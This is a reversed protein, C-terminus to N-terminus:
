LNKNSYDLILEEIKDKCRTGKCSGIGAGTVKQVKEYTDAGNAIADKITKRSIARCLCVKTLKDLVAQRLEENNNDNM